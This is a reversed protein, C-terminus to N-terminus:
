RSPRPRARRRRRLPFHRHQHRLLHHHALRPHRHHLRHLRFHLPALRRAKRANATKEENTLKNLKALEEETLAEGKEQKKQLVEKKPLVQPLSFLSPRRPTPM